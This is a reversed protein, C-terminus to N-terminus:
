CPGATCVALQAQASLLAAAPDMKEGGGPRLWFPSRGPFTGQKASARDIPGLCLQTDADPMYPSAFPTHSTAGGNGSASTQGFSRRVLSNIGVVCHGGDQARIRASRNSRVRGQPAIRQHHLDLAGKYVKQLKTFGRRQPPCNSKPSTATVYRWKTARM